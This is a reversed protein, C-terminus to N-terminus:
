GSTSPPASPSARSPAPSSPCTLAGPSARPPPTCRAFGRWRRPRRGLVGVFAIAPAPATLPRHHALAGIAWGQGGAFAVAGERAWPDRVVAIGTAAALAAGAARPTERGHGAARPSPASRSRMPSSGTSPLGLADAPLPQAPAVNLLVRAGRRGRARRALAWNQAPPVRWRCSSWPRPDSRRKPRNQSQARGESQRGLRRRDRERGQPRRHHFAAVPARDGKPGRGQLDVGAVALEALATKAFITAQRGGGVMATTAGAERGRGPAQNAGKGGASWTMARGSCPREGPHPLSKVRVVLDVNLSGFVLIMGGERFLELILPSGQRAPSERDPMRRREAGQRRAPRPLIKGGPIEIWGARGRPGARPSSPARGSRSPRFRGRIDTRLRLRGGTTISMVSAGNEGPNRTPRRRQRHHDAGLPTLLPGLCFARTMLSRL